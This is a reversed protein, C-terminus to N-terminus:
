NIEDIWDELKPRRVEFVYYTDFIIINLLEITVGILLDWSLGSEDLMCAIRDLISWLRM